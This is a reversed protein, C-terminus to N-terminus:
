IQEGYKRLHEERASAVWGEREIRDKFQNLRHSFTEVDQKSWSAIQRFYFVGLANLKKEIVPGIGRIDKLNDRNAPVEVVNEPPPMEFLQFTGGGTSSGSRAGAAASMTLPHDLEEADENRAASMEEIRANLMRIEADRESVAAVADEHEARLSDAERTVTEMSQVRARLSIIEEDKERVTASFRKDWQDLREKDAIIEMRLSAMESEVPELRAASAKLRAVERDRDALSVRLAEVDSTQAMLNALSADKLQLASSYRRERDQLMKELEVIKTTAARLASELESSRRHESDRESAIKVAERRAYELDTEIKGQAKQQEASESLSTRAAALDATRAALIAESEELRFELERNRDLLETVRADLEAIRMEQAPSISQRPEAVFAPSAIAVAAAAGEGTGSAATKLGAGAPVASPSKRLGELEQAARQYKRSWAEEMDLAVQRLWRKRVWWGIFFGAASAALLFFLIQTILYTM